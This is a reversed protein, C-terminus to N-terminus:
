EVRSSKAAVVSKDRPTLTMCTMTFYIERAEHYRWAGGFVQLYKLNIILLRYRVDRGVGWLEEGCIEYM